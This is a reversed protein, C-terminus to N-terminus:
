VWKRHLDNACLKDLIDCKKYLYENKVISLYENKVILVTASKPTHSHHVHVVRNQPFQVVQGRVKITKTHTKYLTCWEIESVLDAM